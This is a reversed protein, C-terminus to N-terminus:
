HIHSISAVVADCILVNEAGHDVRIRTVATPWREGYKEVANMFQELVTQLLNKSKNSCKLFM